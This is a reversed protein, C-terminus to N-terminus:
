HWKGKRKDICDTQVNFVNRELTGIVLGILSVKSTSPVGNIIGKSM